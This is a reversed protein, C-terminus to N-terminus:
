VFLQGRTFMDGAPFNARNPLVEDMRAEEVGMWQAVGHWMADLSTTPILRGRGVNLAGDDTLDDPYQGYIQAGKVGGGVIFSNGGWAHDTGYGNSTLTRGFDSATVVVVNDWLGQAKMEAEFSGLAADVQAMLNNLQTPDNHTDFGDLKVFFSNRNTGMAARAKIARSVQKFQASLSSQQQFETEVDVGELTEALADAQEFMSGLMRSWTEAFLSSCSETLNGVANEMRTARSSSDTSAVYTPIDGSEDIINADPATAHDGEQVLNSGAISFAGTNYGTHICAYM